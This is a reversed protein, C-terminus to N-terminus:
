KYKLKENHSFNDFERLNDRPVAITRRMIRFIMKFKILLAVICCRFIFPAKICFMFGTNEDEMIKYKRQCMNETNSIYSMCYLLVKQGPKTIFTSLSKYIKRRYNM